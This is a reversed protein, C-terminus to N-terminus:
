ELHPPPPPPQLCLKLPSFSRQIYSNIVHPHPRPGEDQGKAFASPAQGGVHWPSM